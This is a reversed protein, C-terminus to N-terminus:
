VYKSYELIRDSIKLSFPKFFQRPRKHRALWKRMSFIRLIYTGFKLADIDIRNPYERAKDLLRLGKQFMLDGLELALYFAGEKELKVILDKPDNYIDKKECQGQDLALYIVSNIIHNHVDSWIDDIDDYINCGKFISDMAERILQISALDDKDLYWFSNLFCFDATIWVRGVAKENAKKLFDHIDILDKNMKQNISYMQGQIYRRLDRLYFEYAPGERSTARSVMENTFNALQYTSNESRGIDDDRRPLSFFPSTFAKLQMKLSKVVQENEHLTDNINDLIKISSIEAIKAIISKIIERNPINGWLIPLSSLVGLYAAYYYHKRKMLKLRFLEDLSMCRQRSFSFIMYDEFIRISKKFLRISENKPLSSIRKAYSFTASCIADFFPNLGVAEKDITEKHLDHETFSIFAAM